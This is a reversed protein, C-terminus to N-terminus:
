DELATNNTGKVEEPCTLRFNLLGQPWITQLYMSQNTGYVEALFALKNGLDPEYVSIFFTISLSQMYKTNNIYEEINSLAKSQKSCEM